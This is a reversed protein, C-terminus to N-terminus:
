RDLFATPLFKPSRRAMTAQEFAYAFRLLNGESWARGMFSVGVPLGFSAGAPVTIHPYGAMAALVSSGITNHDGNLLDTTWAPGSTVSVLADLSYSRLALDIGQTRTQLRAQDLALLYEPSSLGDTQEALEFWEQGFFRM